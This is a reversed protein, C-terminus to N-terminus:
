ENVPSKLKELCIKYRRNRFTGEYEFELKVLLRKAAAESDIHFFARLEQNTIWESVCYRYDALGTYFDRLGAHGCSRCSIKGHHFAMTSGYGSCIAGKRLRSYDLQIDFSRAQHKGALFLAFADLEHFTLKEPYHALM